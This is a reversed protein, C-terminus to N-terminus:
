LLRIGVEAIEGLVDASHMTLGNKPDPVSLEKNLVCGGSSSRIAASFAITTIGKRYNALKAACECVMFYVNVNRYLKRTRPGLIFAQKKSAPGCLNNMKFASFAMQLELSRQRAFHM